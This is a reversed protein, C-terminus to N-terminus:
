DYWSIYGANSAEHMQLYFWELEEVSTRDDMIFAANFEADNVKFVVWPEFKHLADGQQWGKLKRLETVNVNLEYKIGLEDDFKKHLCYDSTCGAPVKRKSYGAALFDEPKTRM